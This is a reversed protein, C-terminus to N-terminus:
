FLSVLPTLIFTIVRYGVEVLPRLWYNTLIGTAVLILVIFFGYPEIRSLAISQRPPLLAALIRGGDLPPLPFLNLVGLVLNMGIGAVAMRTFFAEDISAGNLGISVLGWALAQVFNCGPGALAVWLSDWRPNRLNGFMVPVPKAYGFMFAGSTLFYLALPIAITGIPDIHRMPNFSVRGMLYATNDGLLRAAYGHAAEHLTIAFIVPLAYVAITQILSDNM